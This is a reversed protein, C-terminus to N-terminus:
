DLAHGFPSPTPEDLDLLGAGLDPRSIGHPPTPDTDRTPVNVSARWAVGQPFVPIGLRELYDAVADMCEGDSYEEPDSDMLEAIDMLIARHAAYVMEVHTLCRTFWDRNTPDADPM